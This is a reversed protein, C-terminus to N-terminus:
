DVGGLERFRELFMARAQTYKWAVIREPLASFGNENTHHWDQPDGMLDRRETCLLANDAEKVCDPERSPLGFKQCIADQVSRAVVDFPSEGGLNYSAQRMLKKVPRSLDNCYAEEADHLLGWLAHEPPCVQSVLVSHQAVSYPRATHGTFRPLISLAHAIDYIHVDESSPEDLSFRTGSITQMWNGPRFKTTV